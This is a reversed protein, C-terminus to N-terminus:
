GGPRCPARIAHVKGQNAGEPVVVTARIGERQAAWAVGQGHNGASAAVVRHTGHERVLRRVRNLAGRVKFSRTPLLCEPKIFVECGCFSSLGASRTLPVRPLANGIRQPARLVAELPLEVAAPDLKHEAAHLELASLKTV